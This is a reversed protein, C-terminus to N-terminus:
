EPGGLPLSLQDGSVGRHYEQLPRVMPEHRAYDRIGSAAALAAAATTLLPVGHQGAAARIHM